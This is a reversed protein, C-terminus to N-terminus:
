PAATFDLNEIADNLTFSQTAQPFTYKSRSVSVIYFDGAPLNEVYYNGFSNTYVVQSEGTRTNQVTVRTRAIPNGYADTTKGGISLNAATTVSNVFTCTVIEGAELVISANRAPVSVTNNNIGSGGNPNSTCNIQILSYFLGIGETISVANAAGFNSLNSFTIRDPGVVGNDILQFNSVGPGTATFSFPQLSNPQSDKIITITAGPIIASASLARDQSGCGFSCADQSMHYPSGSIFVASNNAGWDARTGIHGGWSLVMNASDATFTITLSTHSDGAYSGSVSYASIGTITGGFLTFNGPIQTIDDGNAPIQDFGATVKPDTPIPFTTFTGLSCGAVGSCPNNGMALTETRDFSTLYDLAHLGGKTTDYGLTVTNGTSGVTFGTLIQRYAVSQGEVWHAKSSNVNGNVWASGSCPDVPDGIGGNACQDLNGAAAIVNTVTTQGALKTVSGTARIIYRGSGANLSDFPVSATFGGKENAFVNWQMIAVNQQLAEDYNEVSLLIDEYSGFGEGYIVVTEGSAYGSRDTTLAAERTSGIVSASFFRTQGKQAFVTSISCILM